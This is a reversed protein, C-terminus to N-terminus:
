DYIAVMRWDDHMRDHMLCCCLVNGNQARAILDWQECEWRTSSWWEGSSLWPGCAQEVTYCHRRFFFTNPRHGQLTVFATESPRLMRMASCLAHVTTECSRTTPHRFPDMRFGDMQNTDRLSPSGVNGDGVLARIRALIVDLQSPEPLQPSFLGLQVKSTRGPDADLAISLIAAQPPYAELELHLLKLWIQQDITPLSPRVTCSHISDGELRLRITVSALALIRATARFILRKLMVNVVFMLTDLLEVPSELEMQEQLLFLPEVPQFLHHMEGRALQLLHKGTQGMRAILETEPLEALAGLSRIGWLSFIESQEETLDIVSLPLQALATAEEGAQVVKIHRPEIGKALAMAAHFNRSVAVCGVMGLAKVSALLSKALTQPPGFLKETGAIDIVCLFVSGENCEEIRPSFDSACVLLAARSSVEEELSRRLVTIGSFTEVEVKTMGHVLGLASARSNLSAVYQIPPEGEMVVCPHRRLEIRLRLLAQAPFQRVLLAAYLESRKSMASGGM